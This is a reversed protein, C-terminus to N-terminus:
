GLLFEIGLTKSVDNDRLLRNDVYTTIIDTPYKSFNHM